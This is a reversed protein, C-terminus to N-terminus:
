YIGLCALKVPDIQSEQQQFDLGSQLPFLDIRFLFFTVFCNFVFFFWFGVDIIRWFNFDVIKSQPMKIPCFDRVNQWKMYLNQLDHEQVSPIPNTKYHDSVIQGCILRKNKPIGSNM